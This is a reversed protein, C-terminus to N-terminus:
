RIVIEVNLIWGIEVLIWFFLIVLNVYLIEDFGGVIMVYFNFRVVRGIVVFLYICSKDKFIICFYYFSGWLVICFFFGNYFENENIIVIIM